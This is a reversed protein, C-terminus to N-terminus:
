FDLIEAIEFNKGKKVIRCAAIFPDHEFVMIWNEKAAKELLQKKEEVSKEAHNDYAMVWKPSIHASTPFIDACYFVPNIKDEILPHQQFSTHGSTIKLSINKLGPNKEGDTFVINNKEFLPIFNQDLFSASDRSKGSVASEWQNKQIHYKANKFSPIIKNDIIITSGGCHDFHLHTIIVDTIEEPSTGFPKLAQAPSKVNKVAFRKKFNEDDKSGTGLDILIKKWNGDLFLGRAKMKIMNQEDAPIKQSWLTKPIVGFMAGGDLKFDGWEITRIKYGGSIM